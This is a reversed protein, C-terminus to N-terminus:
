TAVGEIIGVTPYAFIRQPEFGSQQLLARLEARSRERGNDCVVMMQVDAGAGLGETDLREVLQEVVLVRQGPRAAGRVTRLITLSREDDWDHLINKLLYADSGPPVSEFFSGPSLTVREHVGRQRLLPVASELVGAADCLTGRLHPHRVLLESLLTGRGGGVDCVRKVEGFPYLSAIVPADALTLGMMAQAFMEREDPHREFWNWVSAGFVSAFASNGDALTRELETWATVNSQSGCYQVWERTRERQGSVLARSLRNNRFRGDEDLEFVGVSALARLARFIADPNTGTRAAIQEADLPGEALLDAVGHRAASALLATQM